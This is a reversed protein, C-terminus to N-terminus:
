TGSPSPHEPIGLLAPLAEPADIIVEAGAARLADRGRFGWSVGILPLGANRATEVDVESDGVYVAGEKPAGLARLAEEVTDPAPKRRVGPREGIAVPILAPFYRANLAKVAPDPKNSVVALRLGAARLAALMPPVGDYPKTRDLCHAAYHAEYRALAADLTAPDTGPPMARRILRAAGNGVFRRVEDLSREPCGFERLIANVSAHLDSLTDLLTGDMDFLITDPM